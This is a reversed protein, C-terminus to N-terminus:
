QMVCEGVLPIQHVTMTEDKYEPETHLQVAPSLVFVPMLFNM